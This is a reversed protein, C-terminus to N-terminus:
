ELKHVRGEEADKKRLQLSGKTRGKVNNLMNGLSSATLCGETKLQLAVEQSGRQRLWELTRLREFCIVCRENERVCEEVM